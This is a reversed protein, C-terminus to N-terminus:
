GASTPGDDSLSVVMVGLLALIGGGVQVPTMSDHLLLLAFATSFLPVTQLKDLRNM